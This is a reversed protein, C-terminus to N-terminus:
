IISCQPLKEKLLYKVTLLLKDAPKQWILDLFMKIFLFAGLILLLKSSILISFFPFLGNEEGAASQAKAGYKRAM